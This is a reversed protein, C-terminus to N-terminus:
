LKDFVNADKELEDDVYQQLFKGYLTPLPLLKSLHTLYQLSNVHIPEQKVEILEDNDNRYETDVLIRQGNNDIMASVSYKEINWSPLTISFDKEEQTETNILIRKPKPLFQFDSLNIITDKIRIYQEYVIDNITIDNLKVEAVILETAEIANIQEQLAQPIIQTRKM